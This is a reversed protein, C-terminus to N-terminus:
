ASNASIFPVLIEVYLAVKCCPRKNREYLQWIAFERNKLECEVTLNIRRILYPDRNNETQCSIERGDDNWSANIRAVTTKINKQSSSLTETPKGSLQLQLRSPCSILTSCRLDLTASKNIVSQKELTIPCPNDSLLFFFFRNFTFEVNKFYVNRNHDM